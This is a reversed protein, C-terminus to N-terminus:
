FTLSVPLRPSTLEILASVTKNPADTQLPSLYPSGPTSSTQAPGQLTHLIWACSFPSALIALSLTLAWPGPHDCLCCPSLPHWTGPVAQSRPPVQEHM